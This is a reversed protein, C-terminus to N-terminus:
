RGRPAVSRLKRGVMVVTILAFVVWMVPGTGSAADIILIVGFLVALANLIPHTSRVTGVLNGNADRIERAMM